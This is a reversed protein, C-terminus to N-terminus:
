VKIKIKNHPRECDCIFLENQKENWQLLVEVGNCRIFIDNSSNLNIDFQSDEIHEWKTAILKM